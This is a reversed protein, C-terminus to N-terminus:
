APPNEVVPPAEPDQEQLWDYLGDPDVEFGTGKLFEAGERLFCYLAFDREIDTM